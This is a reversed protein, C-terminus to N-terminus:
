GCSPYRGCHVQREQIRVPKGLSREGRGLSGSATKSDVGGSAEGDYGISMNTQVVLCGRSTQQGEEASGVEAEELRRLVEGGWSLLQLQIYKVQDPNDLGPIKRRTVLRQTVIKFALGWPDKEIESILDEWCQLRSKKIGRRASRRVSATRLLRIQIEFVEFPDNPSFYCSYVRLGAVEVWVFGADSELFDGVSLDPGCVLIGARM